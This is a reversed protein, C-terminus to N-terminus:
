DSRSKLSSAWDAARTLEEALLPGETDAVYFGEPEAIVKAGKKALRRAIPKAGYGFISVFFSLIKVEEIKEQTFRTDFAAARVGALLGEPLRNLWGKISATASLQQTPSGVVLLNIGMMDGPQVEDVHIAYAKGSEALQDAIAQAIQRTNGYQSDYVVLSIM